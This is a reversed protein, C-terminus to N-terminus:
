LEAMVDPTDQDKFEAIDRNQRKKQILYWANLASIIATGTIVLWFGTVFNLTIKIYSFMDPQGQMQSEWQSLLFWRFFLLILMVM